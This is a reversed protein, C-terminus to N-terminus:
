FSEKYGTVFLSASGTNSVKYQVVQSPDTPCEFNDEAHWANVGIGSQEYLGDTVNTEGKARVSADIGVSGGPFDTSLLFNGIQSTPPIVASCDVDAYTASTGGNLVQLNALAVNFYFIKRDQGAGDQKFNVLDSSGDTRCSGVRRFVDYGSPLTPATDSLSLLCATANVGTSDGIAFVHYWSSAGLSGTDLANAGTTGANL